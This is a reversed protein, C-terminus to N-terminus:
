GINYEKIIDEVLSPRTSHFMLVNRLSDAYESNKIRFGGLISKLDIVNINDLFYDMDKLINRLLQPGCMIKEIDSRISVAIDVNDINGDEDGATAYGYQASNLSGYEDGGDFDSCASIEIYEDNGSTKTVAKHYKKNKSYLKVNRWVMEDVTISDAQKGKSPDFCDGIAENSLLKCVLDQVLDEAKLPDVGFKIAGKVLKSWNNVVYESAISNTEPEVIAGSFLRSSRVYLGSEIM